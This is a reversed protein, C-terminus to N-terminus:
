KERLRQVTRRDNRQRKAGIVLALKQLFPDVRLKCRQEAEVSDVIKINDKDRTPINVETTTAAARRSAAESVM